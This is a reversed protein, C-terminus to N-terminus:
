RLTAPLAAIAEPDHGPILTAGARGLSRLAEISATHQDHDHGFPPLPAGDLTAAFYACDACLVIEGSDLRVRLSQHGPTHGPTPLCTVLGDGFLDHEGDVTVLDHGLDYDEKRFSNAASLDDDFGAQWETKQIVVRADPIQALGGTHDFHLHSLVVIDVSTPDTDRARLQNAVLAEDTLGIGFFLSAMDRLPGEGTLDAHMGCDFLVLGEPHRILWAPVPIEIPDDTADQEFVSRGASLTGCDLPEITITM